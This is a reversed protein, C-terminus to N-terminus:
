FFAIKDAIGNFFFFFFWCFFWFCVFYFDSFHLIQYDALSNFTQSMPNLKYM